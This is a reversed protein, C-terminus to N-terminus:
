SRNSRSNNFCEAYHIKIKLLCYYAIVEEFTTITNNTVFGVHKGFSKLKDICDNAGPLPTTALLLVGAVYCITESLFIPTINTYLQFCKNFNRKRENNM